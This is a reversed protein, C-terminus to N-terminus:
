WKQIAKVVHKEINSRTIRCEKPHKRGSVFFKSILGTGIPLMLKVMGEPYVFHTGYSYIHIEYPYKFQHNKLRQEMRKCYKATDWLSDDKAGFLLVKGKINEVKIFAEEPIAKIKESRRFIDLMNIEKHKKNGRRYADWYEHESLYFPQFPLAKGEISVTAKNEVPWEEMGEKKGQNYGQMVFDAPTFAMVLSIEPIYSAAILSLMGTISGGTIGVKINGHKFLWKTAAAIYEIPFNHYGTNDGEKQVACLSVVNCDQSHLWKAACKVMRNHNSKGLM